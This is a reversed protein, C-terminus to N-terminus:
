GKKRLFSIIQRALDANPDDPALELFKELHLIAEDKKNQNVYVM